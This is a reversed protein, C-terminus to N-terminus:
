KPDAFRDGQNTYVHETMWTEKGLQIALSYRSGLNGYIHYGIIDIVSAVEDDQLLNIYQQANNAPEGPSIKVYPTAKGGGWGPVGETFRGVQRFFNLQEQATWECGDYSARYDPENQISLAYIPAGENYM